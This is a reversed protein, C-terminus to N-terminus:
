QNATTDRIPISDATIGQIPYVSNNKKKKLIMSKLQPTYGVILVCLGLMQLSVFILEIRMALPHQKGTVFVIILFVMALIGLIMLFGITTIIRQIVLLDRQQRQKVVLTQTNSQRRLFNTIRIYIFM